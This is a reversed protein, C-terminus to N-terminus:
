TICGQQIQLNRKFFTKSKVYLTNTKIRCKNDLSINMGFLIYKETHDLLNGADEEEAAIVFVQTKHQSVHTDRIARCLANRNPWAVM